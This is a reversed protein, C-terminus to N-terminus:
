VTETNKRRIHETKRLWCSFGYHPYRVVDQRRTEDAYSFFRNFHEMGLSLHVTALLSAITRDRDRYPAGDARFRIFRGDGSVWGSEGPSGTVYWGSEHIDAENYIFFHNLIPFGALEDVPVNASYHAAIRSRVRAANTVSRGNANPSIRWAMAMLYPRPTLRQHREKYFLQATRWKRGFDLFSDLVGDVEAITLSGKVEIVARVAEPRLVVFDEDRFVPPVTDSEYVVIDCQRSIAFASRNLPDAHDPGGAPTSDERPFLVFGTGVEVRRPIFDRITRALLREKYRGLSPYHADQLIKSLLDIRSNFSEGLLAAYGTLDSGVRKGTSNRLTKKRSM